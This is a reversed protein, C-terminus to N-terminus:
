SKRCPDIRGECHEHIWFLICGTIGRIGQSELEDSNNAIFKTLYAKDVRPAQISIPVRSPLGPVQPDPSASKFSSKKM